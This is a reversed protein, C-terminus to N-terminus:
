EAFGPSKLLAEALLFAGGLREPVVFELVDAPTHIRSFDLAYIGLTPAGADAFPVHDGAFSAPMGRDAAAIGLSEALSLAQSQLARDGIIGLAEGTAVSDFNLMARIDAVEAPPLSRVYDASGYLGVEEAGFAIFQVTFPLSEGALAEALALVIAVGSTNDNAGAVTEPVVDYHAGVVVVGDGGGPLEAVVNWSERVVANIAVTVIIEGPPLLGVAGQAIEPRFILAPIDADPESLPQYREFGTLTDPIIGAGVAGAAAAANVMEKLSRLSAPNDLEVSAPQMLIVKGDLEAPPLEGPDTAGLILLPGTGAALNPALALPLGDIPLRGFPPSEVTVSVNQPWDNWDFDGFTFPRIEAAYGM